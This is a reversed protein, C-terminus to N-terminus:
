TDITHYEPMYKQGIPVMYLAYNELALYSVSLM